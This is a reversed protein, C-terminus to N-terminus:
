YGIATNLMPTQKDSLGLIKSLEKDDMTARICTKIGVSACFINVNESAIGADAWVMKQAHDGPMGFKEFDGVFVLFLPTNNFNDQRSAVLKRHDGNAVRELTNNKANYLSVADKTVTYVRIEQRNMATPSTINGNERNTGVASWLIDSLDQANIEKNAYERDTKRNKLTTMIDTGRKESHAPLQVIGTLDSLVNNLEDATIASGAINGEPDIVYFTPIWQLNYAKAVPNKKWEKFNCLQLWPLQEKDLYNKWTTADKDFSVGIWTIAKDDIKRDKYQEYLSKLAPTERRCDGCWSAWFDLVVYQGQFDSLKHKTGNTDPVTFEPAKEGVKLSPENEAMANFCMLAMLAFM